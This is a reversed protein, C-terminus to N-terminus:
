EGPIVAPLIFVPTPLCFSLTYKPSTPTMKIASEKIRVLESLVDDLNLSSFSVKKGTSKKAGRQCDYSFATYM